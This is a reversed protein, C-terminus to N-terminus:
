TRRELRPNIIERLKDQDANRSLTTGIQARVALQIARSRIPFRRDAVLRDIRDLLDKDPTIAIKTTSM